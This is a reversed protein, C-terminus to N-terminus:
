RSYIFGLGNLVRRASPVSRTELTLTGIVSMLSFSLAHAMMSTELAELVTWTGIAHAVQIESGSIAVLLPHGIFPCGM